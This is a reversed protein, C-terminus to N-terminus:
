GAPRVRRRYAEMLLRQLTFGALHATAAGMVGMLPILVVQLTLIILISAGLIFACPGEHGTMVLYNALPGTAAFIVQTLVLLVLPAWAGAFSRDFARLILPAALILLGGLLLTLHLMRRRTSSFIDDLESFRGQFHKEAIKPVLPISLSTHIFGSFASIKLALSYAAITAEEVWYGLLLIEIDPMLIHTLSLLSVALGVRYIVATGPLNLVAAGGSGAYRRTLALSVISAILIGAAFALIPFSTSDTAFGLMVGLLIILGCALNPLVHFWAYATIRHHARLLGRNLTMFAFLPIVPAVFRIQEPTIGAKRFLGALPAANLYVLIAVALSQLCAYGRIRRYVERAGAQSGRGLQEQVFRLLAQNLGLLSIGAPVTVCAVLLVYRGLAAPSFARSILLYIGLGSLVRLFLGALNSM